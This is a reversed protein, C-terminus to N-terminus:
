GKAAMRAKETAAMSKPALLRYAMVWHPRSCLGFTTRLRPNVRSRVGATEVKWSTNLVNSMAAKSDASDAQALSSSPSPFPAMAM